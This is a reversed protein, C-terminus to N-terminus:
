ASQDGIRFRSRIYENIEKLSTIEQSANGSRVYFKEVEHGQKNKMKLYLPTDSASIQIVCIIKENIEPFQMLIHKNSFRISFQNNILKRLHLEFYDIDKKKFTVFDHELGIVELNDTVGIFLIGGKANAFASISKLIVDELAKNIKGERFDWRLSSKFEFFESEGKQILSSIENNPLPEMTVGSVTQTRMSKRYVPLFAAIAFIFFLISLYLFAEDTKKKNEMLDSESITVAFGKVGLAPTISDIGVWFDNNLSSFSITFAQEPHTEKWTSFAKKVETELGRYMKIKNTDETRIPTVVNNRGTIISVLPNEFQLVKSFRNGLEQTRYMLAFVDEGSQGAPKFINFFLDRNSPRLSQAARWMHEGPQLNAIRLTDVQEQAMFFNYTDLWSGTEELRNNMRTWELLSDNITNHSTVWTDNERYIVYNMNGGFIVIGQLYKEASILKSFYLDLSDASLEDVDVNRVDANIKNVSEEASALYVKLDKKFSGAVGAIIENSFETRDKKYFYLALSIFALILFSVAIWFGFKKVM